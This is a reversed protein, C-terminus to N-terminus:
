LIKKGMFFDINLGMNGEKKELMKNRSLSATVAWQTLSMPTHIDNFHDKSNLALGQQGMSILLTRKRPVPMFLIVRKMLPIPLPWQIMMM